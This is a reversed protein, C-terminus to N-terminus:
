PFHGLWMAKLATPRTLGAAIRLLQGPYIQRPPEVDAQQGRLDESLRQCQRVPGQRDEVAHRRPGGSALTVRRGAHVRDILDNVQEVGDVNGCCLVIKERTAQDAAEGSVTVAASAGDFAVSLASATLGQAAIYKEIAAAAKLNMEDAKAKAAAPDPAAAVAQTPLSRDGEQVFLKEGAEKLCSIVSM